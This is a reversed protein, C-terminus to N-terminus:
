CEHGNTNSSFRPVVTKLISALSAGTHPTALFVVLKAQESVKKWNKDDSDCSKRIITKALIGGLSHTVFVLPREGIGKALMYDLTSTAREFIDMEKKAWKEFMSAPYGLAYVAVNPFEDFLWHPWEEEGNDTTWTESPDGSLGHIFIIGMVPNEAAALQSFSLGNTM